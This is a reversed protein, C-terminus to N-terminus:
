SRPRCGLEEAIHRAQVPTLLRSKWLAECIVARVSDHICGVIGQKEPIMQRFLADELEVETVGILDGGCRMFSDYTLFPHDSMRLSVCRADVPKSNIRLFWLETTSVCVWMKHYKPDRILDDFPYIVDWPALHRITV